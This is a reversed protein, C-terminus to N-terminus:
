KFAFHLSYLIHVSLLLMDGKYVIAIVKKPVPICMCMYVIYVNMPANKKTNSSKGEARNEYSRITNAETMQYDLPLPTPGSLKMYIENVYGHISQDLNVSGSNASPDQNADRRVDKVIHHEKDLDSIPLSYAKPCSFALLLQPVVVLYVSLKM